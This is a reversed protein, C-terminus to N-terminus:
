SYLKKQIIPYTVVVFIKKLPKVFHTKIVMFTIDHDSLGYKIVNSVLFEPDITSYIHDIITSSNLTTRTPKNILQRLRYRNSINTLSKKHRSSVNSTIDINFDECLVWDNNTSSLREALNELHSIASNVDAKPPIYVTSVFLMKQKKRSIGMTLLEIDKNSIDLSIDLRSASLRSNIYIAVGGGRKKGKEIM